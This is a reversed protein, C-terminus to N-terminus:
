FWANWKLMDCSNSMEPFLNGILELLKALVKPFKELNSGGQLTALTDGFEVQGIYTGLTNNNLSILLRNLDNASIGYARATDQATLLVLSPIKWKVATSFTWM